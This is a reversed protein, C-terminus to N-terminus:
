GTRGCHETPSISVGFNERRMGSVFIIDVSVAIRFTEPLIWTCRMISLYKQILLIVRGIQKSRNAPGASFICPFGTNKKMKRLSIVFGPTCSISKAPEAATRRINQGSFNRQFAMVIWNMTFM